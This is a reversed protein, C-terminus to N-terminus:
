RKKPPYFGALSAPQGNLEVAINVVKGGELISYPPTDSWGGALDIRVPSRSWIIQDEYVNRVPTVKKGKIPDLISKQLTRFAREKYQLGYNGDKKAYFSLRSLFMNEHIVALSNREDEPLVTDPPIDCEKAAHDLDIQFFISKKYNERLAKWNGCRFLRRQNELKQLDAGATIGNASLRKNNLWLAKGRGGTGGVVWEVIYPVDDKDVVPFLRASQIDADPKLGASSYDLGREEMWKSFGIGMYMTEPNSLAGRFSDDFGYLRVVYKSNDKVPVMDLCVGSPLSIEWNNRPIGTIIQNGEVKWAAGIFSNEIWLNGQSEELKIELEANQVFM